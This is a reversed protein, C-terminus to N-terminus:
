VLQLCGDFTVFMNRVDGCHFTYVVTSDYTHIIHMVRYIYKVNNDIYM